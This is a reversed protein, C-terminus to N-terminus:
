SEAQPPTATGCGKCRECEGCSRGAALTEHLQVSATANLGLRRGVAAARAAWTRRLGDPALRWLSYLASALVIPAVIIEQLM